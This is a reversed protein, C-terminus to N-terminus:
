VRGTEWGGFYNAHESQSLVILSEMCIPKEKLRRVYKGWGKERAWKAKGMWVNVVGLATRIQLEDYDSRRTAKRM